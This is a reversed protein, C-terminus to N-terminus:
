FSIDGSPPAQRDIGWVDDPSPFAVRLRYDTKGGGSDKMFVPQDSISGPLSACGVYAGGSPFGIVDNPGFQPLPETGTLHEIGKIGQGTLSLTSVLINKEIKPNNQDIRIGYPSDFTNKFITGSQALIHIGLGIPSVFLNNELDCEGSGENLYTGYETFSIFDCGKISVFNNGISTICRGCHIFASNGISFSANQTLEIGDQCLSVTLSSVLLNTTQSAILGQVCNLIHLNSFFGTTKYLSLGKAAYAITVNDLLNVNPPTDLFSIGGWNGSSPTPNQSTFVIPAYNGASAIMCGQVRIEVKSKDGRKLADYDAMRIEVGPDITLKGGFLIDLDGALVYPSNARTWNIEGTLDGPIVMSVIESASGENGAQDVATIRYYYKKGTMASADIYRENGKPIMVGSIEAFGLNPLESRYIKYGKLDSETNPLWFITVQNPQETLAIGPAKPSDPPTSDELVSPTNFTNTVSTETPYNQRSAIIRFSYLTESKLGDLVLSHVTAYSDQTEKVTRGFYSGEGFEIKGNTFETTKWTITADSASVKQAKIELFDFSATEIIVKRVDTITNSYVPAAFQSTRYGQKKVLFSNSGFEVGEILFTGSADTLSWRKDDQSWYVLAGSVPSGSKDFVEGTIGGERPIVNNTPAACGIMTLLVIGIILFSQLYSEYTQFIKM